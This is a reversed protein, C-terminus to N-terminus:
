WLSIDYKLGLHFRGIIPMSLQSEKTLKVALAIFKPINTILDQLKMSPRWDEEGKNIVEQLLDRGDALSPNM